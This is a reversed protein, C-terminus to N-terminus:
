FTKKYRVKRGFFNFVRCSAMLALDSRRKREVDSKKYSKPDPVLETFGKRGCYCFHCLTVLISM